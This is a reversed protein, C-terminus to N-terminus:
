FGYYRQGQGKRVRCPDFYFNKFNKNPPSEGGWNKFNRFASGLDTIGMVYGLKRMLCKKDLIPKLFFSYYYYYYDTSFLIDAYHVVVQQYLFKCNMKLYNQLKNIAALWIM